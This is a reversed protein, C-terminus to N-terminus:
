PVETGAIMVISVCILLICYVWLAADMCINALIGFIPFFVAEDEFPAIFFFHMDALGGDGVM